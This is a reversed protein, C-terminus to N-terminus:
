ENIADFVKEDARKNYISTISDHLLKDCQVKDLEYM